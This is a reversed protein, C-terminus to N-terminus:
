LLWQKADEIGMFFGLAFGKHNLKSKVARIHKRDLGAFAVKRFPKSSDLLAHVIAEVISQTVTTESLVFCVFAPSSPKSFRPLDDSLKELVLKEQQHIGDLHEFWIEGGHFPLSFSKRPCGPLTQDSQLDAM